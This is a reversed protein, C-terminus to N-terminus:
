GGCVPPLLAIKDGDKLKTNEDFIIEDNLSVACLELWEKLSEDKQLIEKLEKLNKVELELNEKNIPGLFKVKVM